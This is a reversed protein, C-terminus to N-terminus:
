CEDSRLTHLFPDAHIEKPEPESHNQGLTYFCVSPTLRRSNDAVRVRRSNRPFKKKEKFRKFLVFFQKEREREREKGAM